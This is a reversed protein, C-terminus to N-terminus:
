VQLALIGNDLLNFDLNKLGYHQFQMIITQIDIGDLLLQKVM